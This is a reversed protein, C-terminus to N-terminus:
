HHVMGGGVGKEWGQISEEINVWYRLRVAEKRAMDLDGEGFAKELVEVSGKMRTDNEERLVELDEEREAEDVQERVEMVEMLLEKDEEAEEGLKASEDEVDIGRLSLLYQARKLPSTLTKYAENVRTSLAEAQRKRSAPALDPHAKSQLSLYERRLAALDPTFPANPPPGAPFTTPFIDYHTQPTITERQRSSQQSSTSAQQLSTSSTFITRHPTPTQSIQPRAAARRCRACLFSPRTAHASRARITHEFARSPNRLTSRKMSMNSYHATSHLFRTAFYSLPHLSDLRIILNM